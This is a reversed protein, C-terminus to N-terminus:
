PGTVTFYCVTGAWWSGRPLNELAELIIEIAAPYSGAQLVQRVYTFGEAVAPKSQTIYPFSLRSESAIVLLAHLGVADYVSLGGVVGTPLWDKILEYTERAILAAPRAITLDRFPLEKLITGPPELFFVTVYSETDVEVDVSYEEEIVYESGCGKNMVATIGPRILPQLLKGLAGGLQTSVAGVEGESLDRVAYETFRAEVSATEWSEAVVGVRYPGRLILNFSELEVYNVMLTARGYEVIVELRNPDGGQRIASSKAWDVPNTQWEDDMLHTVVYWGDASIEFFYRNDNDTGWMIGYSADDGGSYKYATAEVHFDSLGTERMPAWAWNWDNADDLWLAYEGDRYDNGGWSESLSEWGSAEDDFNDYFETATVSGACLLVATTMLIVITALRLCRNM